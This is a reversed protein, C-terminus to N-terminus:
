LLPSVGKREGEGWWCAPELCDFILIHDGELFIEGLGGGIAGEGVGVVLRRGTLPCGMNNTFLFIQNKRALQSRSTSIEKDTVM